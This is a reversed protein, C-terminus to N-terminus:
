RDTGIFVTSSIDEICEVRCRLTLMLEDGEGSVEESISRSLVEASELEADYLERLRAHAAQRCEDESMIVTEETYGVYRDTRVAVPLRVNGIADNYPFLIIRNEDRIRDYKNPLIGANSYVKISKGFFIVSKEEYQEGTVVKQVREAEVSVELEHVTSAYISGSAHVLKFPKDELRGIEVVGNILMQGMTVVDGSRVTPTGSVVETRLILGDRAAVVNCPAGDRQDAPDTDLKEIVEVEAVTGILNVSIWAVEDSHRLMYEDCLARFDIGPIYSGVGMGLEDLRCIIDDARMEENGSVRVDWIYSQSAHLIFFFLLAGLPIGLRQRYRRLLQPLGSERLVRIDAGVERARAELEGYESKLMTFRLKGDLERMNWYETGDCLLINCLRVPDSSEIELTGCVYNIMGHLLM